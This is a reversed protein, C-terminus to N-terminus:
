KFRANTEEASGFGAFMRMTWPRERYGNPHIGRLYPYEGPLGMDRLYDAQSLDLPTYLGAIEEGSVTTFRKERLRGASAKKKWREYREGLEKLKVRDFM